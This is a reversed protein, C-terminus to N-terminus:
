GENLRGDGLCVRAAELVREEVGLDVRQITRRSVGCASALANTDTWGQERALALFLARMEVRGLVQEPELRMAGAVAGAVEDLSRAPYKSPETPLPFRTGGERVNRDAAVYRHFAQAAGDRAYGLRKLVRAQDAWADGSAGVMDRHTSWMWELPDNVLRKRCPNLSIYRVVRRLRAEPVIEPEAVPLWLGRGRGYTARSLVSGMRRRAEEPDEEEGVVHVHDVMVMGALAAPFGRRLGEWVRRAVEFEGLDRRGLGLHAVLHYVAM